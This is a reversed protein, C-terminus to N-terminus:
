ISLHDTIFFEMTEQSDFPLLDYWNNDDIYLVVFPPKTELLQGWVILLNIFNDKTMVVCDVMNNQCIQVSNMNNYKSNFEQETMNYTEPDFMEGIYVLNKEMDINLDLENFSMGWEGNDAKLSALFRIPGGYRRVYGYCDNLFFQVYTIKNEDHSNRLCRYEKSQAEFKFTQYQKIQMCDKM